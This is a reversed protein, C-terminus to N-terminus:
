ATMSGRPTRSSRRPWFNSCPSRAGPWMNIRGGLGVKEAIAVADITFVKLKKTAITRLMHGPLNKELEAATGWSSNLVFIGGDKIGELIEYDHVYSPKHCAIYDAAEVLYTSQIPKKGFRLHSVTIGGSKKSDYAFYGQAYLDTNDGIIKIASKNAGVTGDSGFGWFKCQVTGEPTTPLPGSVPLSLGSVDDVIGVVFHRKPAVAAMRDDRIDALLGDGPQGVLVADGGVVGLGPALIQDATGVVMAREGDGAHMRVKQGQLTQGPEAAGQPLDPTGAPRRWRDDADDDVPKGRAFAQMPFNKGGHPPM